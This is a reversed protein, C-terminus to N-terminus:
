ILSIIKLLNNPDISAGGILFGNLNKCNTFQKINKSDISGGYVVNIKESASQSFDDKIIRRIEKVAQSIEKATPTKGSGIAWIPEYAIIIRELENEYLGKLAEEIQEKLSVFTKLTNREALSEGVCLIIGLGNKLASKIKRNICKGDEKFRKRRESHGVITYDVGADKLMRGSIEGTSRGEEEDNINQSGLRVAKKGECLFKGVALSTYPLCLTLDVKGDFRPLLTMLYDKTESPTLNMKLNAIVISIM